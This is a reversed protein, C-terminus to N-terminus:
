KPLPSLRLSEISGRISEGAKITLRMGQQQRLAAQPNRSKRVQIAGTNSELLARDINPFFDPDALRRSFPNPYKYDKRWKLHTRLVEEFHSALDDGRELVEENSIRYIDHSGTAMRIELEKIFDSKEDHTNGDIEIILRHPKRIFFDVIRIARLKCLYGKQAQVKDKPLIKLLADLVLKEHFTMRRKLQKQRMDLHSQMKRMLIPTQPGTRRRM